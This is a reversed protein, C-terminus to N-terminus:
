SLAEPKRQPERMWDWSLLWRDEESLTIGAARRYVARYAKGTREWSFDQLRKAGRRRLDERLDANTAMKAVADAVAEVSLPDFLLAADGAQEPLSTVASCAVPTGEQWAEFLPGSAAEFLTPVIVFQALRYLARLEEPTVLGLFKVQDQLSLRLICEQIRPWFYSQCDTCVLAIILGDRDRLLALAELLRIHNKHEWAMAPYFAFSMDLQYKERISVLADAKPEPYAQTPPAWPIVQVKDLNVQYHEVIDQRVWQSAAVVTHAFHCGHRYIAERRAITSPSFFQPYHLHQLDHPNYISPLKCLVFPQWPFHIVNCGLSEFFGGSVPAELRTKRSGPVYLWDLEIEETPLTVTPSSQGFIANQLNRVIFGLPRPFSSSPPQSPNPGGVIRQNPGIYPKLWEPNQWPGIIVYEEPGDQLQGLARVVGVLVSRVGGGSSPLLQANIAVRICYNRKNTSLSM